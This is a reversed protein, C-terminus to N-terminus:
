KLHKSEHQIGIMALRVLEGAKTTKETKNRVKRIKALFTSIRYDEDKTLSVLVKTTEEM